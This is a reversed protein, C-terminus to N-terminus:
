ASQAGNLWDSMAQFIIWVSTAGADQLGISKEGYSKARGFKAVCNRTSEMGERARQAAREMGRSLSCGQRASEELGLVAPELADVMTKDGVQARGRRKLADLSRRFIGALLSLTAAEHNEGAVSGSIFVTGFLVGSAGGMTDLLTM